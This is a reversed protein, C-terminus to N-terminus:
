YRRNYGYGRGRERGRPYADEMAEYTALCKLGHVLKDFMDVDAPTLQVGNGYKADMEELERHIVDVINNYM